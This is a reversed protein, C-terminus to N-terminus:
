QPHQQNVMPMGNEWGQPADWPRPSDNGAEETACGSIGALLSGFALVLLWQVARPKM